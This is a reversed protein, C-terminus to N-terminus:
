ERRESDMMNNSRVDDPAILQTTRETISPLSAAMERTPLEKTDKASIQDFPKKGSLSIGQKMANLVGATAIGVGTLGVVASLFKFWPGIDFSKNAVTMVIGIGLIIIGLTIWRFMMRVMERERESQQAEREPLSISTHEAVLKGVTELRMGCARCFQQELDAPKGCNPCHMMPKM